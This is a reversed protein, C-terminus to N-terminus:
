YRREGIGAASLTVIYERVQLGPLFHLIHQQRMVVIYPLIMAYLNNVSTKFIHCLESIQYCCYFILVQSLLFNLPFQIQIISAVM